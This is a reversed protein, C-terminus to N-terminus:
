KKSKDCDQAKWRIECPPSEKQGYCNGEGKGQGNPDDLSNGVVLNAQIDQGLKYVPVDLWSPWQSEHHSHPM